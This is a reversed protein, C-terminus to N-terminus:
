VGDLSLVVSEADEPIDEEDRIDALAKESVNWWSWDVMRSLKQWTSVVPSAGVFGDFIDKATRVSMEALLRIAMRGFLCHFSGRSPPLRHWSRGDRKISRGGDDRNGAVKAM